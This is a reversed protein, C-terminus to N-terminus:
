NIGEGLIIIERTLLGLIQDQMEFCVSLYEFYEEDSLKSIEVHDDPIKDLIEGTQILKNFYRQMEVETAAPNNILYLDVLLNVVTKFYLKKNRLSVTKYVESESYQLFLGEVIKIHNEYAQFMTEYKPMRSVKYFNIFCYISYIENTSINYSSENKKFPIITESLEKLSYNIGKSKAYIARTYSMGYLIYSYVSYIKSLNDNFYVDEFRITNLLSDSYNYAWISELDNDIIDAVKLFARLNQQKNKIIEAYDPLEAKAQGFCSIINVLFIIYVLHNKM